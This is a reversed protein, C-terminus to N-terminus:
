LPHPAFKPYRRRIEYRGARSTAGGLQDGDHRLVIFSHNSMVPYFNRQIYEALFASGPKQRGHPVYEDSLRWLAIWTRETLARAIQRQVPLSTEIGPNMELYPSAPPPHLVAYVATNNWLAYRMDIPAVFVTAGRGAHRNIYTAVRRTDTAEEQSNTLITNGSATVERLSVSRYFLQSQPSLPSVYLVYGVLLACASGGALTTVISSFSKLRSRIGASLSEDHLLLAVSILSWPVVSAATWFLYQSDPTQLFHPLLSAVSVNTSAIYWWGRVVGLVTLALPAVFMIVELPLGLGALPPPWLPSTRGSAIVFLPDYLAERLAAGGTLAGLVLFFGTAGGALVIASRLLRLSDKRADRTLLAASLLCILGAIGFEFRITAALLFLTAGRVPNRRVVWLGAVFFPLAVLWPYARIDPTLDFFVLAATTVTVSRSLRTWSGTAIRNALVVYSSRAVISLAREAVLPPIGLKILGAIMAITGPPYMTWFERYPIKGSALLAPYVLLEGEDQPMVGCFVQGAAVVVLGILTLTGLVRGLSHLTYGSRRAPLGVALSM